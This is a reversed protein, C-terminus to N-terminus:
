DYSGTFLDNNAITMCTVGNRHGLLEEVCFGTKIDWIRGTNDDSGSLLWQSKISGDANHSTFTLLCLIWSKHGEFTKSEGTTLDFSRIVPDDGAVFLWKDYILMCKIAEGSAIFSRDVEGTKFDIAKM